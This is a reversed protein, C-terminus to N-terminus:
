RLFEEPLWAWCRSPLLGPKPSLIGPKKKKKLLDQLCVPSGAGGLDIPLCGPSALLSPGSDRAGPRPARGTRELRPPPAGRGTHGRLTSSVRAPPPACAREPHWAQSGARRLGAGRSPWAPAAGPVERCARLPAAIRPNPQTPNPERPPKNQKGLGLLLSGGSVPEPRGRWSGRAGGSAIGSLSGSFARSLFFPALSLALSRPSFLM